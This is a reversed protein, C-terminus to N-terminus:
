FTKAISDKQIRWGYTGPVSPDGPDTVLNKVRLSDHPFNMPSDDDFSPEVYNPVVPALARVVVCAVLGVVVAVACLVGAPSRLVGMAAFVGGLVGGGTLLLAAVDFVKLAKTM